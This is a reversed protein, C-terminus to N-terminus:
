ARSSTPGPWRRCSAALRGRERRRRDPAHDRAARGSDDAAPRASLVRRPGPRRLRGRRARDIEIPLADGLPTGCITGAALARSARRDHAPGQGQGRRRGPGQSEGPRAGRRRSRGPHVRRVQRQDLDTGLDIPWQQRSRRDIIRDDLEIDPSANIARRLFKQEFRKEGDLYLVRLGGELVTLYADLRNNKVVLEGPQPDAAVDPSLPRATQPTYTFEVEVQRNDEDARITRRGIVRAAGQDNELTLEVPMDQKVYGRVRLLARVVLENKVFVTFQEDLREVAVDRSQAADGAPGFTVTYLPAAFDDRLKRAAEQTEVLPEFATQAGDGLM